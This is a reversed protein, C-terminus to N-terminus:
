VKKQIKEMHPLGLDLYEVVDNYNILQKEKSDLVLTVFKRGKRSICLLRVLSRFM